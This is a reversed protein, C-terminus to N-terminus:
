QAPVQGGAPRGIDKARDSRRRGHEQYKSNKIRYMQEDAEKIANSMDFSRDLVSTIYGSSTAVRYPKGSRANYEELFSDIAKLIEDPDCDGFIISFVEDGGFRTSLSNDPVSDFLAKAIMQIANDGEAHGFTDNIYKLGDLDSMIVTVPRDRYGVKKRLRALANEFGTRNYLGTLSDHRYMEDMKALLMSQYRLNIYGGIGISIANTVNLTAAYNTILYEGYYYCIFGFPRNMFDLCNFVLPYGRNTLERLRDELSPPFVDSECIDSEDEGSADWYSDPYESDYVTVFRKTSVQTNEDTFFNIDENFCGSDAAVLINETKYSKINRALEMPDRSAHMSSTIMQLVRNDDNILSFSEKFWNRLIDPHDSHEPCGCSQNPVFSPVIRTNRKTGNNITDFLLEVTGDSLAKIDCASTTIKPTIFQIEDYGDFGSILVDEPVRYGDEILMETVTIAMIDNACIIAEPLSGRDLLARTAIRCPDAWFNGYSIMSDDFPIDNDELVKKFIAIRRESFENDRHGAMMHPRRVHHFEIMHRVVKEFGAEYDFTIGSTGSYKGDTIVVPVNYQTAKSIIRDAIKHSKIKEDMIVIADVQDYPILEYVYKETAIRDEEWYIDSNITFILLAYGEAKLRENLNVIFSHIQPDYVRSTCLAILRKDRNM